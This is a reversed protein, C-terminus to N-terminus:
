VFYVSFVGFVNWGGCALIVVISRVSRAVSSRRWIRWERGVMSETRARVDVQRWRWAKIEM